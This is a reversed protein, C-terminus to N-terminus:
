IWRSIKQVQLTSLTGSGSWNVTNEGPKLRLNNYDGSVARNALATGHTQPWGDYAELAETDIVCFGDCQSFDIDVGIGNIYFSKTGTGSLAWLPRSYTNGNNRIKTYTLGTLSLRFEDTGADYKYPQVHFVVKAQKFRLLREFDIQKVITYRYYKDPENSFIVKGSMNDVFYQIVEDVDYDGCLGIQVTKDYAAYGLLTLRDGDRGDITETLVRQQPKTIPPLSQILLGKILTSRTENLTIINM